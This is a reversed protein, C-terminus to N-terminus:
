SLANTKRRKKRSVSASPQKKLSKKARKEEQAFCKQQAKEAAQRRKMEEEAAKKRLTERLTVCETAAGPAHLVMPLNTSAADLSSRNSRASLVITNFPEANKLICYMTQMAVSPDCSKSFAERLKAFTQIDSKRKMVSGLKSAVGAKLLADAKCPAENRLGDVNRHFRQAFNLHFPHLCTEAFRKNIEMTTIQEHAHVACVLNFNLKRKDLNSQMVYADRLERMATNFRKNVAQDCPQLFHSTNASAIVADIDNRRCEEIWGAGNRSAHGDLTLLM